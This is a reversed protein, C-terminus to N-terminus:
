ITVFRGPYPIKTLRADGSIFGAAALFVAKDAGVASGQHYDVSSFREALHVPSAV